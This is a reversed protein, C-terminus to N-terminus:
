NANFVDSVAITLGDLEKSPAEEGDRFTGLKKYRSGALVLVTITRDLPNVIWYEPVRAEAYDRKKDRLDRKPNDASVVEVVVDAGLWFRDQRRPDKADKLVILDPERYKGKRVRLRIGAFHVKGNRPELFKRFIEFLFALIAQHRDTPMPLFELYGDTYEVLRRSQEILDLYEDESWYGQEPLLELLLDKYNRESPRVAVTAM